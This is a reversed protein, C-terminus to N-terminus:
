AGPGGRDQYQWVKQVSFFSCNLYIFEVEFITREELPFLADDHSISSMQLSDSLLFVAARVETHDVVM